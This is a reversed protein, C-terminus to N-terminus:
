SEFTSLSFGLCSLKMCCKCHVYYYYYYIGFHKPCLSFMRYQMDTFLSIYLICFCLLILHIRSVETSLIFPNKLIRMEGEGTNGESWEEWGLRHKTKMSGGSQSPGSSLAWLHGYRGQDRSSSSGSGIKDAHSSHSAADFSCMGSGPITQVCLCNRSLLEWVLYLVVWIVGM